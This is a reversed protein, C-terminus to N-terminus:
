IAAKTTCGHNTVPEVEPPQCAAHYEAKTAVSRNNVDMRVLTLYRHAMSPGQQGCCISGAPKLRLALAIFQRMSSLAHGAARIGHRDGLWQAFM